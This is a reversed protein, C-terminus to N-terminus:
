HCYLIIFKNDAIKFLKELNVKHVMNEGIHMCGPVNGGDTGVHVFFAKAQQFLVLAQEPLIRPVEPFRMKFPRPYNQLLLKNYPHIVETTNPQCLGCNIKLFFAFLLVIIFFCKKTLSM